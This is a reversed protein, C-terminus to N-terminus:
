EEGRVAKNFAATRRDINEDNLLPIYLEEGCVKCVGYLEEYAFKVGTYDIDVSREQVNYDVLRSCCICFAISM